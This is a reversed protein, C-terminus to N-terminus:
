IFKKTRLRNRLYVVQLFKVLVIFSLAIAAFKTASSPIQDSSFYRSRSKELVLSNDSAMNDTIEEIKELDSEYLKLHDKDPVREHDNNAVNVTIIYNVIYSKKSINDACVTIVDKDITTHSFLHDDPTDISALLKKDQTHFTHRIPNSGDYALEGEYAPKAKHPDDISTNEQISFEIAISERDPFIETFCTKGLGRVMMGFKTESASIPMVVALMLIATKFGRNM